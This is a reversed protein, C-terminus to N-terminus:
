QIKNCFPSIIVHHAFFCFKRANVAHIRFSPSRCEVFGRRQPKETQHSKRVFGIRMRFKPHSYPCLSNPEFSGHQILYLRSCGINLVLCFEYVTKGAEQLLVIGFSRDAVFSQFFDQRQIVAICIYYISLVEAIGIPAPTMEMDAARCPLLILGYMIFYFADTVTGHKLIFFPTGALVVLIRELCGIIFPTGVTSVLTVPLQIRPNTEYVAARFAPFRYQDTRHAVISGLTANVARFLM